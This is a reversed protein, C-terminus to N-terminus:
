PDLFKLVGFKPPNEVRTLPSFYPTKFIWRYPIVSSVKKWDFFSVYKYPFFRSKEPAFKWFKKDKKWNTHRDGYLGMDKKLKFGFFIHMQIAIEM